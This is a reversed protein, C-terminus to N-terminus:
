NQQCFWQVFCIKHKHARVFWQLTNVTKRTSAKEKYMTYETCNRFHKRFSSKIAFLLRWVKRYASSETLTSTIWPFQSKATQYEVEGNTLLLCKTLALIYTPNYTFYLISLPIQRYTRKKVFQLSLSLFTYHSRASATVLCEKFFIVPHPRILVQLIWM